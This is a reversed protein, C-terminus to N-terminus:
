YHDRRYYDGRPYDREDHHYRGRSDYRDRDDYYRDRDDYRHDRGRSYYRDREDYPHHDYRERGYRPTYRDVRRLRRRGMYEGPTPSHAKDTSSFDTRINRGHLKMGNCAEKARTADEISAFYIFGFCRSRQTKKDIILDVKQVEGHRSFEDRLDNETTHASLGFVGLCNSPPPHTHNGPSHPNNRPSRSRSRSRSWSRSRSHRHKRKDRDEGGEGSSKPSNSTPQNQQTDIAGKNPNSDDKGSNQESM